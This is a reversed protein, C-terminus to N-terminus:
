PTPSVAQYGEQASQECSDVTGDTFITDLPVKDRAAWAGLLQCIDDLSPDSSDAPNQAVVQPSGAVAEVADLRTFLNGVMIMLAGVAVLLIVVLALLVKTMGLTRQEVAPPETPAPTAPGDTITM